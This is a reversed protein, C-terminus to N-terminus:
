GSGLGEQGRRHWGGPPSSLWRVWPYQGGPAPSPGEERRMTAPAGSGGAAEAEERAKGKSATCSPAKSHSNITPSSGEFHFTRTRVGSVQSLSKMQFFSRQAHLNLTKLSSQPPGLDQSLTRILSLLSCVSFLPLWTLVSAPVLCLLWLGLIGPAGLIWSLCSPGEGPAEPPPM